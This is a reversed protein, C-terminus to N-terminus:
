SQPRIFSELMERFEEIGPTPMDTVKGMDDYRRLQVASAYYPNSEFQLGETDNMPGGQLHLSTLSAESLTTLYDPEKWCLYRKADVHLRAPEVIEPGFHRSLWNAGVAEHRADIGEDAIHEGLNHILHGYDHLLCAVIMQPQEGAQRAFTACQLAHQLETVQEGYHQGGRAEFAALIEAAIQSKNKPTSM